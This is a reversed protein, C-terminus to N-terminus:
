LSDCLYYSLKANCIGTYNSLLTFSCVSTNLNEQSKSLFVQKTTYYRSMLNGHNIWVNDSSHNHINYEHWVWPVVSNKKCKLKM